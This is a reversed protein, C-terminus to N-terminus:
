EMGATLGSAVTRECERQDLGISMWVSILNDTAASEDLAGIAVLRGLSFAARDLSDNRTGPETRSSTSSM